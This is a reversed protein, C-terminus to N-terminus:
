GDAHPGNGAEGPLGPASVKPGTRSSPSSPNLRLALALASTRDVKLGPPVRGPPPLLGGVIQGLGRTGM